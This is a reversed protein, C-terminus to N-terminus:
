SFRGPFQTVIGTSLRLAMEPTRGAATHV